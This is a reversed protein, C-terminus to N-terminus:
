GPVELSLDTRRGAPGGRVCGTRATSRLSLWQDVPTDEGLEVDDEM